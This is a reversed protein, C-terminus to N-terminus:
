VSELVRERDSTSKQPLEPHQTEVFLIYLGGGIIGGILPAVIPIWFYHSDETFVMHYGIIYTFLRPGFDRNPSIGLGSNSSFACSIATVLLALAFPTGRNGPWRNRRDKIAYSALMICACALVETYFATYNSVGDRAYTIFLRYMTEQNPDERRIKQANLVYILAAGVFAGLIQAVMYGPVKWWPMRGYVANTVTIVSIIQAGSVSDAVFTGLMVAVGWGVSVTMTDGGGNWLANQAIGGLGFTIALVTALFEALCERLHTNYTVFLRRKTLEHHDAQLYQSSEQDNIPVHTDPARIYPTPDRTHPGSCDDNVASFSVKTTTM